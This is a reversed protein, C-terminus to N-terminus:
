ERVIEEHDFPLTNLGVPKLGTSHESGEMKLQITEGLYFYITATYDFPDDTPLAFIPIPFGKIDYENMLERITREKMNMTTSMFDTNTSKDGKNIICDDLHEANNGVQLLKMDFKIKTYFPKSGNAKLEFVVRDFRKDLFEKEETERLTVRAEIMNTLHSFSFLKPDKSQADFKVPFAVMPCYSGFLASNYNVGDETIDLDEREVILIHGSELTCKSKKPAHYARYIKEGQNALLMGNFKASPSTGSAGYTFTRPAGDADIIKVEDIVDWSTGGGPIIISKLGKSESGIEVKVFGDPVNDPGENDDSSCSWLGAVLVLAAFIVKKM